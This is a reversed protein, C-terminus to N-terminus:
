ILRNLCSQFASQIPFFLKQVDPYCDRESVHYYILEGESAETNEEKNTMEVESKNESEPFSLFIIERFKNEVDVADVEHECRLHKEMDREEFRVYNCMDCLYAMLNVGDFNFHPEKKVDCEDSCFHSSYNENESCKYKYNGTHRAMHTIWFYKSLCMSKNCFYCFQEYYFGEFSSATKVRECKHTDRLYRLFVSVDPAVRSPFVESDPHFKIYHNVLSGRVDFDCINCKLETNLCHWEPNINKVTSLIM